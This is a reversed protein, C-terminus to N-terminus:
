PLVMDLAHRARPLLMYFGHVYRPVIQDEVDEVATDSCMKM